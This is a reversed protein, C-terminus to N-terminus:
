EIRMQSFGSAIAARPRVTSSTALASFLWFTSSGAPASSDFALSKVMRTFRWYTVGASKALSGIAAAALEVAVDAVADDDLEVVAVVVLEPERVALEAGLEVGM